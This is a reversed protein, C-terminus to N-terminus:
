EILKQIDTGREEVESFSACAASLTLAVLWLCARRTM